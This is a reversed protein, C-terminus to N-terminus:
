SFCTYIYKQWPKKGDREKVVEVYKGGKEPPFFISSEWPTTVESLSRNNKKWSELQQGLRQGLRSLPWASFDIQKEELFWSSPHGMFDM